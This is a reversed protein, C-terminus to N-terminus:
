FPVGFVTDAIQGLVSVPIGDWEESMTELFTQRRSTFTAPPFEKLNAKIHDRADNILSSEWLAVSVDHADAWEQPFVIDGVSDASGGQSVVEVGQKQMYQELEARTNFAAAVVDIRKATVREVGEDDIYTRSNGAHHTEPDDYIWTKDAQRSIHVWLDRGYRGQVPSIDTGDEQRDYLAKTVAVWNPDPGWNGSADASQAKKYLEIRPEHSKWNSTDRNLYTDPYKIIMFGVPWVTRNRYPGSIVAENPVPLSALYRTAAKIAGEQGHEILSFGKWRRAEDSQDKPSVIVAPHIQVKVFEDMKSTGSRENTHLSEYWAELDFNNQEEAM